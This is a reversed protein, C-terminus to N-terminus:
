DIQDSFDLWNKNVCLLKLYGILDSIDNKKKKKSIKIKVLNDYLIVLISNLGKDNEKSFHSTFINLPDLASNGYRNNKEILM